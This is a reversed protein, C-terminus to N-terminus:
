YIAIKARYVEGNVEAKIFYNGTHLATSLDIEGHGHTLIEYYKVVIRGFIDFVSIDVKGNQGRIDISVKGNSPNPYLNIKGTGMSIDTVALCPIVSFTDAAFCGNGLVYSIITTGSSVGTIEGTVSNATAITTNSSSWTGGLISPTVTTTADVCVSMSSVITPTPKITVNASTSCSGISYTVTTTGTALGFVVGSIPKVFATTDSNSWRGGPTLNSLTTSTGVCIDTAGSIADPPSSVFVNTTSLGCAAGTYSITVSGVSVSAVVGTTNITAVSPDSSSWIGGSSGIHLKLTDGICMVMSGTTSVIDSPSEWYLAPLGIFVSGPAVDVVSDVLNCAAGSLNPNNICALHKDSFFSRMYIKGDAALKLDYVYSSSDAVAQESARIAAATPVSLDYQFATSGASYHTAYLKSNDPSFEAGGAGIYDNIFRVNSVTGTAPNFDYLEAGGMPLTSPLGFYSMVALKHRDPSIKLVGSAHRSFFGVASVVPTTNIGANSIEFALFENGVMKHTLLWINCNDGRIAIMKESMKTALPIGMSGSIIDGMGGDMTMDVISYSLRARDSHSSELNELSFIYYQNTNGFVPIVVAAQSTSTTVFPVIDSGSPMEFGANNWVKKGNTYFLLNGSADSVSACGEGTYLGSGVSVPVGSNFDIGVNNGFAWVKNQNINYQAFSLYSQLVLSFLLFLNKM